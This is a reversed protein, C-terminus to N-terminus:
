QVIVYHNQARIGSEPDIFPMLPLDKQLSQVIANIQATVTEGESAEKERNKMTQVVRVLVQAVDGNYGQHEEPTLSEQGDPDDSVTVTQSFDLVFTSSGETELPEDQPFVSYVPYTAGSDQLRALAAHTREPAAVVILGSLNYGALLESIFALRIAKGNIYSSDFIFPLILGDNEALGFQQELVGIVREREATEAGEKTYGHGFLVAIRPYDGPIWSPLTHSTTDAIWSVTEPLDALQEDVTPAKEASCSIGAAALVGCLFLAPIITKKM